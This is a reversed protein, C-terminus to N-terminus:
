TDRTAPCNLPKQIFSKLLISARDKVPYRSKFECEAIYLHLYKCDLGSYVSLTFAASTWFKNFKGIHTGKLFFQDEPLFLGYIEYGGITQICENNMKSNRIRKKQPNKNEFEIVKKILSDRGLQLTKKRSEKSDIRLVKNMLQMSNLQRVRNLLIQDRVVPLLVSLSTPNNIKQVSVSDDDNVSLGFVVIKENKSNETNKFAFYYEDFKENSKNSKSNYFNNFIYTRIKKFIDKRSAYSVEQSNANKASSNLSFSNVLQEFNKESIRSRRYYKNKIRKPM